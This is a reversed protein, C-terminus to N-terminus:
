RAMDVLFINGRTENREYYLWDGKPSWVPYRVFVRATQNATVNREQEGRSDVTRVDWVGGRQVAM